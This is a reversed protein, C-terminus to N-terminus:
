QVSVSALLERARTDDPQRRLAEAYAAAAADKRGARQLAIGRLIMPETATPSLEAARDFLRIAQDTEGRGQWVLGALVFGEHRRPALSMARNAATLAGAADGEAWAIEGLKIWVEADRPNKDRMEGYLTKAQRLEGAAMHCRALMQRLDQRDRYQSDKLLREIERAADAPRGAAVLAMALDELLRGDDPRLMSAQRYYDVAQTYDKRVLYLQALAVRIGSNQDFYIVKSELLTMAEDPRDLSVLMEAMALVFAVDDPTCEHARKYCQYAGDFQRWRQLVIGQYYHAVAITGNLEIALGLQHFARELQGRELSLRGGLIHAHPNDPDQAIVDTLSKECQDLDGADFQRQAMQLMLASRTSRWRQNASNVAEVHMTSKKEFNCGVATLVLMGAIGGTILRRIRDSNM